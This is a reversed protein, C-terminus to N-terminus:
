HLSLNLAKRTPPNLATLGLKCNRDGIVSMPKGINLSGIALNPLKNDRGDSVGMAMGSVTHEDM